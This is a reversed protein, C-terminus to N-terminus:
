IIRCRTQALPGSPSDTCCPCCSISAVYVGGSKVGYHMGVGPCPGSTSPAPSVLRLQPDGLRTKLANLAAQPSSYTFQPPLSACLRLEPFETACSRRKEETRPEAAVGTPTAVAPAEERTAVYVVAVVAVVLAVGALIAWGPPGAAVGVAVAPAAAPAVRQVPLSSLDPSATPLQGAVFPPAADVAAAQLQQVVRAQEEPTGESRLRSLEARATQLHELHMLLEPDSTEDARAQLQSAARDIAPIAAALPDDPSPSREAADRQATVETAQQTGGCGGCECGEHGQGSCRQLEIAPHRNGRSLASTVAKNGVQRQLSLM